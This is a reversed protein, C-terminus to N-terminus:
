KPVGKDLAKLMRDTEKVMHNMELHMGIVEWLLILSLILNTIVLITVSM